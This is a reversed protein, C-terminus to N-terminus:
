ACARHQLRPRRGAAEDAAEARPQRGFEHARHEEATRARAPRDPPRLTRWLLDSKYPAKTHACLAGLLWARRTGARATIMPSVPRPAGMELAPPGDDGGGGVGVCLAVVCRPVLTV